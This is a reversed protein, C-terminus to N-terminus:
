VKTMLLDKAASQIVPELCIDAENAAVKSMKDNKAHVEGAFHNSM